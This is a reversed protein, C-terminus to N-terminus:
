KVQTVKLFNAILTLHLRFTPANGFYPTQCATIALDLGVNQFHGAHTPKDVYLMPHLIEDVKLV